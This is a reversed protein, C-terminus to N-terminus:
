SGAHWKYVRGGLKTTYQALSEPIGGQEGIIFLGSSSLLYDDWLLLHLGDGCQYRKSGSALEYIYPTASEVLPRYASNIGTDAKNQSCESLISDAEKTIRVLDFEDYSPYWLLSLSM